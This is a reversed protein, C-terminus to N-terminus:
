DKGNNEEGVRRHKWLYITVIVTSLMLVSYGIITVPDSHEPEGIIMITPLGMVLIWIITGIRGLWLRLESGPFWIPLCILILPVDVILTIGILHISIYGNFVAIGYLRTWFLIFLILPISGIKGIDIKM